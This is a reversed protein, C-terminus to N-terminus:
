CIALLSFMLAICDFADHINELVKFLGVFIRVFDKYIWGGDM